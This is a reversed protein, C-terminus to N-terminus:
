LLMRPPPPPLEIELAWSSILDFGAFPYRSRAVAYSVFPLGACAMM